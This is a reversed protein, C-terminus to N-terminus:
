SPSGPAVASFWSSTTRRSRAGELRRRNRCGRLGRRARDTAAREGPGVLAGHAPGSEDLREQRQGRLVEAAWRRRGRGVGHVGPEALQLGLIRGLRVPRGHRVPLKRVGGGRDRGGGRPAARAGPLHARGGAGLRGDRGVGARVRRADTRAAKAAATGAGTHKVSFVKAPTTTTTKPPTAAAASAAVPFLFAIAPVIRRMPSSRRM